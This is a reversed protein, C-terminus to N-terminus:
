ESASVWSRLTAADQAFAQPSNDPVFELLVYHDGPARQVAALYKQWDVSGEALPRRQEGLWHFCHMHSLRPLAAILGALREEFGMDIPPQWYTLFNPHGVAAIFAAASLNTETLTSRHYECAVAIGEQAARDAIRRCDDIVARRYDEDANDWNKSGAWIRIVPAGLEVASALVASFGATSGEGARYYSGYAATELGALETLRRVERARALDGPPVHVDGGWEIGELQAKYVLEVVGAPSRDRFTISVLGTHIM